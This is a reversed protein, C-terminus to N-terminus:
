AAARSTQSEEFVPHRASLELLVQVYREESIHPRYTDLLFNVAIVDEACSISGPRLTGLRSFEYEAQQHKDSYCMGTCFLWTILLSAGRREAADM